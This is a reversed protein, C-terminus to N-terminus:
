RDSEQIFGKEILLERLQKGTVDITDTRAGKALLLRVVEESNNEAALFLPSKGEYDKQDILSGNLLLLTVVDKSGALSALHLPTRDMLDTANANAGKRLLFASIRRSGMRSAWHLATEKNEAWSLGQTALNQDANVMREVEDPQNLFIASIIDLTASKDALARATKKHGSRTAIYVARRGSWAVRNVDAGHKILIEAISTSGQSASKHLPGFTGAPYNPTAGSDLLFTVIQESKSQVGSYLPTRGMSDKADVDAGHVVLLEVILPHKTGAATALPSSGTQSGAEVDAGKEILLEAMEHKGWYSAEHLATWGKMNANVDSGKEILLEALRVNGRRAAWHLPYRGESDKENAGEPHAVIIRKATEVDGEQIARTLATADNFGRGDSSLSRCSVNLLMLTILVYTVMGMRM